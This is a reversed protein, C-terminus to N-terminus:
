HFGRSPKSQRQGLTSRQYGINLPSFYDYTVNSTHLGIPCTVKTSPTQITSSHDVRLARVPPLCPGLSQSEGDSPPPQCRLCGNKGTPV